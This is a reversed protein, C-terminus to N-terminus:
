KTAAKVAEVVYDFTIGKEEAFEYDLAIVFKGVQMYYENTDMAIDNILSMEIDTLGANGVNYIFIGVIYGDGTEVGLYASDDGVKDALYDCLKVFASLHNDYGAWEDSGIQAAASESMNEYYSVTSKVELDGAEFISLETNDSKLKNALKVSADGSCGVLSMLVALVLISRIIKKM